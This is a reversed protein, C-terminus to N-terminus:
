FLFNSSIPNHSHVDKIVDAFLKSISLVTIKDCQKKLPISNTVILECLASEKIKEYAQGSLVPHTVAARVSNAGNDMMLNAARCLTGATDVIDDMLIVNKGKVDGILRMEAIENHKVRAKHCLALPTHFYNAYAHARKSGGMDPSAFVMEELGLSEIYPAIVSSGYLHDVPIDFFGQIQDAHLDMTMIRTAGAAALMNAILKAAISTRPKDKRDQRAYGFYPMVAAIKDASARRAADIMLLMEFLNKVPPFTSQIIFVYSGRVSEEYSPQMEGDSFDIFNVKGLEIGFDKAIQEALYRSNRGSFIKIEANKQHTM